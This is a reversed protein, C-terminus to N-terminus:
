IRTQYTKTIFNALRMVKTADYSAFSNAPNFSSMCVLLKMNVEDFRSDLEQIVIDVVRKDELTTMM